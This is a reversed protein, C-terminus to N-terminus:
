QQSNSAKKGIIYRLPLSPLLLSTICVKDLFTIKSQLVARLLEFPLKALPLLRSFYSVAIKMEKGRYRNMRDNHNQVVRNQRRYLCTDTAHIFTGKLALVGLLTLDAGAYNYRRLDPIDKRKFIGLAPNMSGWFVMIFRATPSLNRTDCWGSFKHLINGDEGIWVPTGFALTASDDKELSQVCTSICDPAWKDHGSAWMFYKGTSTEFSHIFNPGVGINKDQQHYSIRADKQAFEKCIAATGDTSHNDSILIELNPYDQQTISVLTERLHKEENYIPMAVSVLPLDTETSM